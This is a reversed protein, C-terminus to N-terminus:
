CVEAIEFRDAADVELGETADDFDLWVLSIFIICLLLVAIEM